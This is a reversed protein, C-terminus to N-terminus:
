KYSVTDFSRPTRLQQCVDLVSQVVGLLDRDPLGIQIQAGASTTPVYGWSTPNGFSHPLKFLIFHSEFSSPGSPSLSALYLRNLSVVHRYTVSNLIGHRSSVFCM